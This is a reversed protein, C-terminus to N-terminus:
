DEDDSDNPRRRRQPYDDEDEDDDKEDDVDDERALHVARVYSPSLNTLTISRDTIETPRISLHQLIAVTVLWILFLMATGFCAYGLASSDAGHRTDDSSIGAIVFLLIGVCVVAALTGWTMWLRMRFYGQHAECLPVRVQMRKTLILTVILFPLLGALLLIAVWPPSWSFSKRVAVQAREGCCMCRFPMTKSTAERRHLKISKKAM